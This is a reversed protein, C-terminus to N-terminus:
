KKDGFSNSRSKKRGGEIKNCVGTLAPPDPPPQAVAEVADENGEVGLRKCPLLVEVKTDYKFIIIIDRKM